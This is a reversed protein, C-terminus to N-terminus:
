PWGWLEASLGGAMTFTDYTGSSSSLLLSAAVHPWVMGRRIVGAATEEGVGAGLEILALAEGAPPTNNLTVELPKHGQQQAYEGQLLALQVKATPTGGAASISTGYAVQLLLRKFCAVERAAEFANGVPRLDSLNFYGLMSTTQLELNQATSYRFLRVPRAFRGSSEPPREGERTAVSVLWRSEPEADEVDVGTFPKLEWVRDDHLELVEGREGNVYAKLPFAARDFPELRFAHGAPISFKGESGASQVYCRM